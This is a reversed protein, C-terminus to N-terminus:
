LKPTTKDTTTGCILQCANNLPIKGTKHKQCTICDTKLVENEHGYTANSHSVSYRSSRLKNEMSSTNGYTREQAMAILKPQKTVNILIGQTFRVGTDVM